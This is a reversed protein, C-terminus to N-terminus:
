LPPGIIKKIGRSSLFSISDAYKIPAPYKTKQTITAWHMYSLVYSERLADNLTYWAAPKEMLVEVLLPKSLVGKLLPRGTSSLVGCNGLVAYSGMEPCLIKDGERAYLRYPVSKKLSVLAYKTTSYKNKMLEAVEEIGKLESPYVEGDKMFVTSAPKSEEIFKLNKTLLKSILRYMDDSSIKLGKHPIWEEGIYNGHADMLVTAASKNSLVDIGIYVDAKLRDKLLWPRLGLKGLLGSVLNIIVNKYIHQKERLLKEKMRILMYTAMQSPKDEFAAKYVEYLDDNESRLIAVIALVKNKFREYNKIVSNADDRYGWLFPNKPLSINFIKKSAVSIDRYFRRAENETIYTEPYVIAIRMGIPISIEKAAGLERLNKRFFRTYNAPDLMKSGKGFSLEPAPFVELDETTFILPEDEFKFSLASDYPHILPNISHLFSKTLTLRDEPKIFVAKKIKEIFEPRIEDTRYNLYAMSSSVYLKQSLGSGIVELIPADDPILDAVKPLDLYESYYEKITYNRGNISILKSIGSKLDPRFESIKFLSRSLSNRRIVLAVIYRNKLNKKARESDWESLLDYITGYSVIRTLPDLTLILSGDTFSDFRFFLGRFIRYTKEVTEDEKFRYYKNYASPWFGHYELRSRLVEYFFEEVNLFPANLGSYQNSLELNFGNLSLQKPYNSSSIIVIGNFDDSPTYRLAICGYAKSIKKIIGNLVRYRDEDSARFNSIKYLHCKTKIDSMKEQLKFANLIM